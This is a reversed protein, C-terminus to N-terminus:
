RSSLRSWDILPSGVLEAGATCEHISVFNVTNQALFTPRLALSAIRTVLTLNSAIMALRAMCALPPTVRFDTRVGCDRSGFTAVSSKPGAEIIALLDYFYSM